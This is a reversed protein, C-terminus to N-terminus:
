GIARGGVSFRNELDGYIPGRIMEEVASTRAPQALEDLENGTPRPAGERGEVGEREEGSLPRRALENLLLQTKLEAIRLGLYM